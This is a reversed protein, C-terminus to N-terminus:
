TKIFNDFKIRLSQPYEQEALAQVICLNKEYTWIFWINM